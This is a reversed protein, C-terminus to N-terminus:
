GTGPPGVLLAGKPIKGGLSTYKEPNKLFDVIEQVEEKAGELGAVNEFTIKIDNKEDFLRARSKGISFIQGGGGGGAGSMRRMMFIWIAIFLIFPLFGIFDGWSSTTKNEYAILNNEQVAKELRTQFIEDNGIETKYHPGTTPKKLIDETPVDIHDIKDLAEEKIFAEATTKNYIIVKEFDGRDLYRYFETITLNKPDNMQFGGSFFSWGFVVVILIVYLAWINIKFGPNKRPRNNQNEKGKNDNKNKSM